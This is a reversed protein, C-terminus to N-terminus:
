KLKTIFRISCKDHYPCLYQKLFRIMQTMAIGYIPDADGNLGEYNDDGFAVGKRVCYLVAAIICSPLHHNNTIQYPLRQRRVHRLPSASKRVLHCKTYSIAKIYYTFPKTVLLSKIAKGSSFMGCAFCMLRGCDFVNM